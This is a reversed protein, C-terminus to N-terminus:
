IYNREYIAQSLESTIFDCLVIGISHNCQIIYDTLWPNIKNAPTNAYLPPFSNVLYCSAFNIVVKDTNNKAYNIANIIELKKEEVTNVAYLDQIYFDNLEFSDSDVWGSYAPIGINSFTRSIIYMKGRAEGLTQPLQNSKDIITQYNQLESLLAQEFNITSNKDDADKKISVLLTESPNKLLFKYFDNVIDDFLLDQDVFSHVAHLSNHRLQLRIDFFRVGCKLQEKITLDQCKGAVDAISHLAASDHTGPISLSFFAKEDDIKKMWNSADNKSYTIPIFAFLSIITSFIVSTITIIIRNRYM